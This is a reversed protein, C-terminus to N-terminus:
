FTFKIGLGPDLSIHTYRYPSTEIFPKLDASIAFPIPKFKYEIGIIGDIGIAYNARDAVYVYNDYTRYYVKRGYYNGTNLHGGIGYYLNLGETGTTAIKEYLATVGLSYPWLSVIGEFANGGNFKHKFTLGSTVGARIGIANKYNFTNVKPNLENQAKVKASLILGLMLLAIKFKTAKM